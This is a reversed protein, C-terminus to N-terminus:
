RDTDDKGGTLEALTTRVGDIHLVAQLKRSQAAFAHQYKEALEVAKALKAEMEEIRGIMDFGTGFKRSGRHYTPIKSM